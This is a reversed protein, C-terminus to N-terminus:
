RADAIGRCEDGAFLALEYGPGVPRIGIDYSGPYTVEGLYHVRYSTPDGGAAVTAEEYWTTQAIFNVHGNIDVDSARARITDFAPYYDRLRRSPDPRPPEAPRLSPVRLEELDAVLEDPLPLPGDAGLLVITASGTGVRADGSYVGHEYTVSSKGIRGIGTHVKVTGDAFRVPGLVAVHQGAFVIKFPPLAGALREFRTLRVRLRAEDLWRALGVPGAVGSPGIDGPRLRIETARSERSTAPSERPSSPVPTV